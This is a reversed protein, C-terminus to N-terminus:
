QFLPREVSGTNKLAFDVRSRQVPSPGTYELIQPKTDPQGPKGNLMAISFPENITSKGL